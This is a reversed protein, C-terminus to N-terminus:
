AIYFHLQDMFIGVSPWAASCIFSIVKCLLVNLATDYCSSVVPGMKVCCTPWIRIGSPFFTKQNFCFIPVIVKWLESMNGKLCWKMISGFHGLPRIADVSALGCQWHGPFAQPDKPLLCLRHQTKRHVYEDLKREWSGFKVVCHGNERCDRAMYEEQLQPLFCLGSLVLSIWLLLFSNSQFSRLM